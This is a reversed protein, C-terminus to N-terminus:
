RGVRMASKSGLSLFFQPWNRELAHTGPSVWAIEGKQGKVMHCYLLFFREM